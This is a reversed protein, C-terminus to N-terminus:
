LENAATGFAIVFTLDFLLELPTAARHPEDPDRGVMRAVHHHIADTMAPMRPIRRMRRRHVFPPTAPAPPDPAEATPSPSGCRSGSWCRASRASSGAAYPPRACYWM